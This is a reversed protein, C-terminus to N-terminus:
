RSVKKLIEQIAKKQKKLDEIDPPTWIDSVFAMWELVRSQEEKSVNLLEKAKKPHNEYVGVNIVVDEYDNQPQDNINLKYFFLCDKYFFYSQKNGEKLEGKKAVCLYLNKENISKNTVIEHFKHPMNKLFFRVTGDGKLPNGFFVILENPDGLYEGKKCFDKMYIIKEAPDYEMVMIIFENIHIRKSQTKFRVTRERLEKKLSYSVKVDAMDGNLEKIQLVKVLAGLQNGKKFFVM